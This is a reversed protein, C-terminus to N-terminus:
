HHFKLSQGPHLAQGAARSTYGRNRDYAAIQAATLLQKTQLHAKLHVARLRGNLAAVGQTLSEIGAEDIAGTAFGSDLAREADIIEGGLKQAEAKMRTMIRELERVQMDSVGLAARLELVHLPGPTRNLEAPLSLKMGRGSRLDQVQESSLAKIERGSMDAYESHRQAHAAEVSVALALIAKLWIGTM